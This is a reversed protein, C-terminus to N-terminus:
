RGPVTQDTVVQRDFDRVEPHRTVDVCTIIVFHAARSEQRDAPHARLANQVALKSQFGVDPGEADNEPLNETM